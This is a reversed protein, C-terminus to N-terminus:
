PAPPALFNPLPTDFAFNTRSPLGAVAVGVALVAILIVFAVRSVLGRIPREIHRLEVVEVEAESGPADASPGGAKERSGPM